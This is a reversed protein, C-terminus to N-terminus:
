PSFLTMTRHKQQEKSPECTGNRETKELVRRVEAEYLKATCKSWLESFEEWQSEPSDMKQMARHQAECRTPFEKAFVAVSCRALLQFEPLCIMLSETAGEDLKVGGSILFPFPMDALSTKCVDASASACRSYNEFYPGCFGALDNQLTASIASPTHSLAVQRKRSLNVFEM